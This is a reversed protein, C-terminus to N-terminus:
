LQVGSSFTCSNSYSPVVRLWLPFIVFAEFLIARLIAPAMALTHLIQELNPTLFVFCQPM